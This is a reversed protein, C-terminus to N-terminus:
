STKYVTDHYIVDNQEYLLVWPIKWSINKEYNKEM